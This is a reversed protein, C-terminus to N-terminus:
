PVRTIPLPPRRAPGAGWRQWDAQPSGRERDSPNRVGFGAEPCRYGRPRQRIAAFVAQRYGPVAYSQPSLASSRASLLAIVCACDFLLVTRSSRILSVFKANATAASAMPAVGAAACPTLIPTSLSM